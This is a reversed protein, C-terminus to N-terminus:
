VVGFHFLFCQSFFGCGRLKMLMKSFYWIPSCFSPQICLFVSLICMLIFNLMNQSHSSHLRYSLTFHFHFSTKLKSKSKSFYIGLTSVRAKIQTCTKANCHRDAVHVLLFLFQKIGMITQKPQAVSCTM